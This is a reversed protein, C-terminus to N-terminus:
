AASELYGLLGANYPTPTGHKAHMPQVPLGLEAELDAAGHEDFGCLVLRDHKGSLEDEVFAITPFLVNLIEERNVEPLEVSRVLRLVGNKLASVTIAKGSLKATLTIGPSKELDVSTVTATTVLGTHLGAARFPAEYRSIIELAAAVVVVSFGKAKPQPHYSLAADEVDFPVSKKMRFRILQQREEAGDPLADFDLVAVRTAFDPLILVAKRRKKQPTEGGIVRTIHTHLAEPRLVNDRLPSVSVVDRELPEFGVQRTPGPRVYAIGAESIEFLFEPPSDKLLATIKDVFSM